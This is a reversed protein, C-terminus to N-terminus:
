GSREASPEMDAKIMVVETAVSVALTYLPVYVTDVAGACCDLNHTAIGIGSQKM